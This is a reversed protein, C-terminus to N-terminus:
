SPSLEMSNTSSSTHHKDSKVSARGAFNISNGFGTLHFFFFEM